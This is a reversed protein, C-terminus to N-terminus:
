GVLELKQVVFGYSFPADPERSFNGAATMWGRRGGDEFWKAPLSPNYYAHGWDPETHVHRWPGWPRPAEYLHLMTRRWPRAGDLDTYAWQALVFRDFAPVYQIGAMSTFGRFKFVATPKRVLEPTWSPNDQADASAFFEWDAPDLRGIRDRRVRGLVMHNGNNWTASNSVAYVHDDFCGGYDQGFQVFFPTAFRLGPFMARGAPPKSSWTRGHDESEVITADYVRQIKDPYDGASSHQSVSLYLVGDVCTMGNAKWTDQGERQGIRGYEAMPNVQTVTHDPPTGSVRFIALNSDCDDAIGRTDDAAAYIEGDDAWACSWVDGHSRPYLAPATLWRVGRITESTGYPSQIPV